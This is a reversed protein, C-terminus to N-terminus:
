LELDLQQQLTLNAEDLQDQQQEFEKIEKDACNIKDKIAEREEM